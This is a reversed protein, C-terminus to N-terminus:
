TRTTLEYQCRTGLGPVTTMELLGDVPRTSCPVAPCYITKHCWLCYSSGLNGPPTAWPLAVVAADVSEDYQVM